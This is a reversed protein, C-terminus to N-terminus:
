YGCKEYNSNMCVRAMAQAKSIDESTMKKAIIERNKAALEDGNAASINYWMHAIVFDSLVGQGQSLMYGLSLQASAVGQEAALTYWKAAETYDQPVGLGKAYMFGLNFQAKAHGQEAALTYWKAAEKYDQPVAKGKEYLYGISFQAVINGADALHKFEKLATVYDGKKYAALGNDFDQASIPAALTMLFCSLAIIFRHM